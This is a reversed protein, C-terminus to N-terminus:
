ERTLLQHNVVPEQLRRLGRTFDAMLDNLITESGPVDRLRTVVCDGIYACLRNLDSIPILQRRRIEDATKEHVLKAACNLLAVTIGPNNATLSEECLLACVGLERALSHEGATLEDLRKQREAQALRFKQESTM